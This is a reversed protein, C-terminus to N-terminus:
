LILSLGPRIKSFLWPPRKSSSARARSTSWAPSTSSMDLCLCRDSLLFSHEHNPHQIFAKNSYCAKSLARHNALASVSPDHSHLASLQRRTSPPKWVSMVIRPKRRRGQVALQSPNVSSPATPPENSNLPLECPTKRQRLRLPLPAVGQM